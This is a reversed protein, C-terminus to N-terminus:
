SSPENLPLTLTVLTGSGEKSEFELTGGHVDVFKKAMILGVGFGGSRQATRVDTKPSLDRILNLKEASMGIGRDQVEIRIGQTDKFISLSIKQSASSARIANTMINRIISEIMVSDGGYLIPVTALSLEIEINKLLLAAELGHIVEKILTNMEFPHSQPVLQGQQAKSWNLINAMLDQSAFSINTLAKAQFRLEPQVENHLHSSLTGQTQLISSFDHAILSLLRARFELDENLSEEVKKQTTIDRFFVIKGSSTRRADLKIVNVEYFHLAGTVDTIQWSTVADAFSIGAVTAVKNWGRNLNEKKLRLIDEAASNFDLVRDQEDLIVVPDPIERFILNKAIPALDLLGHRKISYMIAGEAILFTGSALMAWRLDSNSIIGYADIFLSIAGCFLLFSMQRKEIGSAKPIAVSLFVIAACAFLNASLIHVLFWPGTEFQVLTAGQWKYLRYNDALLHNLSPVTAFVITFVAPFLSLIVVWWRRFLRNRSYTLTLFFFWSQGLLSLGIYRLRSFQAKDLLSDQIYVNLSCFSIIALSITMVILWRIEPKRRYPFVEALLLVGVIFICINLSLILTPLSLM